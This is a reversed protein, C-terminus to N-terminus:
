IYQQEKSKIQGEYQNYTSKSVKFNYRCDFCVLKVNKSAVPKIVLWICFLLLAVPLLIITYASIKAAVLVSNQIGNLRNGGCKPCLITQEETEMM